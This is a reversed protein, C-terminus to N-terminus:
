TRLDATNMARENRALSNSAITAMSNTNISTM